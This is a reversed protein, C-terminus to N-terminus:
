IHILSLDPAILVLDGSMRARVTSTAPDAGDVVVGVIDRETIMGLLQEREDVVVAASRGHLRMARAADAVTDDPGVTLVDVRMEDAAWVRDM